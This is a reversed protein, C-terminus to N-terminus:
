RGTNARKVIADFARRYRMRLGDATRWRSRDRRLTAWEIQGGRAALHRLAVGILLRDDDRKVAAVWSLAEEAEGVERRTLAAPRLKVDSSSGEGGRDDYDGFATHRRIDPWYARVTLWARERDPQRWVVRIAEILREQVDDFSLLRGDSSADSSMRGPNSLVVTMMGGEDADDGGFRDVEGMDEIV